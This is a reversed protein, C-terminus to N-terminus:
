QSRLAERASFAISAGLFGGNVLTFAGVVWITWAPAVTLVVGAAAIV